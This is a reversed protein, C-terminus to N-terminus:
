GGGGVGMGRRGLRGARGGEKGGGAGARAVWGGGGEGSRERRGGALRALNTKLAAPGVAQVTVM